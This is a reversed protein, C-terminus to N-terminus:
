CIKHNACAGTAIAQVVTRIASVDPTTADARLAVPRLWQGALNMWLGAAIAFLLLKTTRDIMMM